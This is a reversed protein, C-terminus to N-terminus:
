RLVLYAGSALGALTALSVIGSAMLLLCGCGPSAGRSPYPGLFRELLVLPLLFLYIATYAIPHWWKTFRAGDKTTYDM